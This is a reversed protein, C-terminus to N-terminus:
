FIKGLFGVLNQVRMPGFVELLVAEGAITTFRHDTGSPIVCVDGAKVRMTEAGITVDIEGSIMMVAQEEADHRHVPTGSPHVLRIQNIGLKLGAVSRRFNNPLVEVEPLDRWSTSFPM